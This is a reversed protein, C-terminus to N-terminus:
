SHQGNGLNRLTHLFDDPDFPKTVYSTADMNIGRRLQEQRDLASLIMVPVDGLHATERLRKLLDFGDTDPLMLDLVIMSPKHDRVDAMADSGNLAPRYEFGALEVYAGVLANIEPDDEIVLVHKSQAM